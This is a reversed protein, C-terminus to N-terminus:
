ANLLAACHAIFPLIKKRCQSLYEKTAAGSRGIQEAIAEVRQGQMQLTLAFAREPMEGGFRQLGAAVCDAATGAPDCVAPAAVVDGLGAWQETSLAVERASQRTRRQFHDLLCHRAVQWIWARASGTGDFSAAGRVIKVLTEQLVDKADDASAGQHVFFRLMAPAHARYLLAVAGDRAPGGAGIAELLAEDTM